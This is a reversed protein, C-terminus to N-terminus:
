QFDRLTDWLIISKGRYYKIGWNFENGHWEKIKDIFNNSFEWTKYGTNDFCLNKVWAAGTFDRRSDRNIAQVQIDFADLWVKASNFDQLDNGLNIDNFNNEPNLIAFNGPYSYMMNKNNLRNINITQFSRLHYNGTSNNFLLFVNNTSSNFQTGPPLNDVKEGIGIVEINNNLNNEQLGGYSILRLDSNLILNTIQDGVSNGLTNKIYGYSGRSTIVLGANSGEEENTVQVWNNNPEVSIFTTKPGYIFAGFKKASEDGTNDILFSHGPLLNNDIPYSINAYSLNNKLVVGGNYDERNCVLKNTESQNKQKFLITLNEPKGTGCEETGNKHCFIGENSIDIDGMIELIVKSEDTTSVEFVSGPGKSYLSYIRFTKQPLDEADLKCKTNIKEYNKKTCIVTGIDIVNKLRPQKPLSLPQIWIGGNATDPLLSDEGKALEKVNQCDNIDELNMRWIISGKANDFPIINLNGLFFSDKKDSNNEGIGFFGFGSESTDSNVQINVRLKNSASENTSNIPSSVGEILVSNIGSNETGIYKTSILNFTQSFEKETYNTTNGITNSGIFLNRVIQQEESWTFNENPPCFPAKQRGVCNEEDNCWSDDAWYQNAPIPINTSECETSKDSCNNVIWFYNFLRGQSNDNLLARLKSIGSYSSSKALLEQRNIRSGTLGLISAAMLGSVGVAIGIGIILIQPLAFGQNNKKYIIQSYKKFILM